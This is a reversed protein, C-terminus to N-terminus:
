LRMKKRLAAPLAKKNVIIALTKVAFYDSSMFLFGKQANNYTGWSNKVYYWNNGDIDKTVAVVHMMHDIDTTKDYFTQQREKQLDNIKAPLFALSNEFQFGTEDVDGDWGITYGNKLAYNTIDMFENVPVNYYADGTWNYKDELVFSTYFPHHTYSTIEIFDEPNISLYNKLFSQATYNIGKYMFKVPVIGLYHNFVSDLWSYNEKRLVNQKQQLLSETYHKILTDLEAHNHYSEGKPKGTYAQEPVMGYHKMVWVVDHFQGGPTFFNTGKNKLYTEIKHIYSYRAVFMESLDVKEKKTRMIESELFSNSSFSWCTSSMAQDKVSTCNNVAPSKLGLKSINIEQTFSINFGFIVGSLCIFHKM